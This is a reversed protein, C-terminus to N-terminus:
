APGRAGAAPGPRQGLHHQRRATSGAADASGGRPLQTGHPAAPCWWHGKRGHTSAGLHPPLAAVQGPPRARHPAAVRAASLKTATLTDIANHAFFSLFLQYAGADLTGSALQASLYHQWNFTGQNAHACAFKHEIAEVEAATKGFRREILLDADLAPPLQGTVFWLLNMMLCWVDGQPTNIVPWLEPVDHAFCWSRGNAWKGGAEPCQVPLWFKRPRFRQSGFSDKTGCPGAAGFDGLLLLFAGEFQQVVINGPKLDKHVYGQPLHPRPFPPSPTCSHPTLSLQM